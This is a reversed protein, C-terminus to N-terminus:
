AAATFWVIEGIEPERGLEDLERTIRDMTESVPLDWRDFGQGEPRPIGAVILGGELLERILGLSLARVEEDSAAPLARRAKQLAEWLSVDDERSDALLHERVRERVSDPM